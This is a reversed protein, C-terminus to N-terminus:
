QTKIKVLIKYFPKLIKHLQAGQTGYTKDLMSQMTNNKEVVNKLMFDSLSDPCDEISVPAHTMVLALFHEMKEERTWDAPPVAFKQKKMQLYLNRGKKEGFFHTFALNIYHLNKKGLCNIIVAADESMSNEESAKAEFSKSAVALNNSLPLRKVNMGREQWFHVVADFGTDKSVIVMEKSCDAHLEYGLYSVLQFDLGNSGEHCELFEPKGAANMLQIAQAYAMRPSHKTYFVLVRCTTPDLTNLLEIWSDGVNESDIYYITKINWVSM